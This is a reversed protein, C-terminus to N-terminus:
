IEAAHSYAKAKFPNEGKLELFFAMEELVRAIDYKTMLTENGDSIFHVMDKDISLARRGETAAM